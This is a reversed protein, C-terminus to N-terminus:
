GTHEDALLTLILIQLWALDMVAALDSAHGLGM